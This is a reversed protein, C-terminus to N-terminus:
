AKCFDELLYFNTRVSPLFHLWAYYFKTPKENVRAYYEQGSSEHTCMSRVM